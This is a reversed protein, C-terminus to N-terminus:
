LDAGSKNEDCGIHIGGYGLRPTITGGISELYQCGTGYDTRLKLNSRKYGDTTDKEYAGSLFYGLAGFVLWGVLIATAMYNLIKKGANTIANEIVAEAEKTKETM